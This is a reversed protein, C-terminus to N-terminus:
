TYSLSRILKSRRSLETKPIKDSELFLERASTGPRPSYTFTHIKQFGIEQCLDYTEQFDSETELPFGVIIDTGFFLGGGDGGTPLPSNINKYLTNKKNISVTKLKDFTDIIKQKNYPRHMLKLIKDSCSQLPIHLFNSVRNQFSSYLSLFKNDICLVPVSGFSILKIKTQTLLAEILNSFGPIYQALNVGTIIVEQYGDAVASSVTAAAEEIPLSNLYPRRSPVTCFTCNTTCGSQVRLIYRETNSFKDHINSSYKGSNKKLISEKILNDFTYVRPLDDVKDLHACGTALVIVDPDEKVLKKIKSISEYEGKKTISCTNVLYVDPHDTDPTLGYDVLIQSLQNTEAANARCGFNLASFTHSSHASIATQLDSIKM